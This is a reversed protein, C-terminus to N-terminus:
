RDAQYLPGGLFGVSGIRTGPVYLWRRVFVHSPPPSLVRSVCCSDGRAICVLGRRSRRRLALDM